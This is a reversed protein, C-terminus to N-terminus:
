SLKSPVCMKGNDDLTGDLRVHDQVSRLHDKAYVKRGKALICDKKLLLPGLIRLAISKFLFLMRDEARYGVYNSTTDYVTYKRLAYLKM